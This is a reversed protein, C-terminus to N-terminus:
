YESLHRFKGYHLLPCVDAGRLQSSKWRAKVLSPHTISANELGKSGDKTNM